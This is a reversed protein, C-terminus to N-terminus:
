LITCFFANARRQQQEQKRRLRQQQEPTLVISANGALASSTAKGRSSPTPSTPTSAPPSATVLRLRGDWMNNSNNGGGGGGGGRGDGNDALPNASARRAARPSAAAVTNSAGAVSSVTAADAARGSAIVGQRRLIRVALARFAAAVFEGTLASTEFFPVDWRAAFEAGAVTSVQRQEPPLDSKNGVIIADIVDGSSAAAPSLSVPSSDADPSSALTVNMSRLDALWADLQTFSRANSVDYVL